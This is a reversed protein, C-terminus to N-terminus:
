AGKTRVRLARGSKRGKESHFANNLRQHGHGDDEEQNLSGPVAVEELPHIRGVELPMHGAINKIPFGKFLTSYASRIGLGPGDLEVHGIRGAIGKLRKQAVDFGAGEEYKDVIGKAVFVVVVFDGGVGLSVGKRHGLGDHRHQHLHGNLLAFKGAPVILSNVKQGLKVAGAGSLEGQAM